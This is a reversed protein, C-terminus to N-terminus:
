NVVPEASREESKQLPPITNLLLTIANHWQADMELLENLKIRLKFQYWKPKGLLVIKEKVSDHQRKLAKYIEENQFKM